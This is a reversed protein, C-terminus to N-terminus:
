AKSHKECTYRVCRTDCEVCIYLGPHSSDPLVILDSAKEVRQCKRCTYTKDSLRYMGMECLCVVCVDRVDWMNSENYDGGKDYFCDECISKGDYSFSNSFNPHEEHCFTCVAKSQTVVRCYIEGEDFPHKETTPFQCGECFEFIEQQTNM